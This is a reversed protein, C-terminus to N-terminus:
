DTKGTSSTSSTPSAESKTPTEEAAEGEGSGDDGESDSDGINIPAPSSSRKAGGGGGGLKGRFVRYVADGEGGYMLLKLRYRGSKQPCHRLVPYNDVAEDSEVAVGNPDLLYMDLDTGPESVALPLYCWQSDLELNIEAEQGPRLHLRKLPAIPEGGAVFMSTYLRHMMTLLDTGEEGGMVYRQVIWNGSGSFMQAELEVTSAEGLCHRVVPYNDEGRDQTVVQGNHRLYLDFDTGEPSLGIWVYCAPGDVDESLKVSQNSGLQGHASADDPTFGRAYRSAFATLMRSLTPDAGPGRYDGACTLASLGGGFTTFLLMLVLLAILLIGAIVMVRQSAPERDAPPAERDDDDDEDEDDDDPESWREDDDTESRRRRHRVAVLRVKAGVEELLDALEEADDEELRRAVTLPLEDLLHDAEDDPIDLEAALEEVLEDRRDADFRTIVVRFSSSSM